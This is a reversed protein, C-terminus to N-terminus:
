IRQLYVIVEGAIAQTSRRLTLTGNAAITRTATLSTNPKVGTSTTGFADSLANGGGGTADRLTASSLLASTSVFLVVDLIRAAFPANANYIVIDDAGGGGAAFTKRVAIVNGAEGPPDVSVSGDNSILLTKTNDDPSRLRYTDLGADDDQTFGLSSMHEDLTPTDISTDDYQLEIWSGGFRTQTIGNGVIQNLGDQNVALIYRRKVTAM